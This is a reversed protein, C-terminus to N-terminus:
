TLEIFKNGCHWTHIESYERTTLKQIRIHKGTYKWETNMENDGEIKNKDGM